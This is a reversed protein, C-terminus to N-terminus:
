TIFYSIPSKSLSIRYIRQERHGPYDYSVNYYAWDPINQRNFTIAFNEIEPFPRSSNINRRSKLFVRLIPMPLSQNYLVRHVELFEFKLYRGIVTSSHFVFLTTAVPFLILLFTERRLFYDSLKYHM